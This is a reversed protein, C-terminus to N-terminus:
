NAWAWDFVYEGYSHSKAYLPLAGVLAPGRWATVYHATGGTAPSACGGAHLASLFAHALLPQGRVLADWQDKEISELPIDDRLSCAPRQVAFLAPLSKSM